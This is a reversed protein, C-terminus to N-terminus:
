EKNGDTNEEGEGEGGPTEEGEPLDNEKKTDAKGAKGAKKAEVPASVPPSYKRYGQEKYAAFDAEPVTVLVPNEPHHQNMQDNTVVIMGHSIRNEQLKAYKKALLKEVSM